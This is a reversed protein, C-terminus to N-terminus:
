LTDSGGGLGTYGAGILLEKAKSEDDVRIVVGAKGEERSVFAYMYEVQVGGDALLRMIGALAGPTDDVRVSLVDTITVPLKMDKLCAEARDPDDVILRLVGFHLTDAISLARINVGCDALKETLEALRGPRNELFVSLQKLIMLIM